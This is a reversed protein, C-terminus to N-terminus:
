GECKARMKVFRQRPQLGLTLTAVIGILDFSEHPFFHLNNMPPPNSFPKQNEVFNAFDKWAQAYTTFTNMNKQLMHNIIEKVDDDDHFHTEGFFYPNFLTKCLTPWNDVDEM